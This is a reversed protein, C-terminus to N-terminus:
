KWIIKEVSVCAYELGDIRIAVIPKNEEIYSLESDTRIGGKPWIEHTDCIKRGGIRRRTGGTLRQQHAQWDDQCGHWVVHGDTSTDAM